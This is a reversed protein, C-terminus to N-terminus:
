KIANGKLTLLGAGPVNFTIKVAGTVVENVTAVTTLPPPPPPTTTPPPKPEEKPKEAECYGPKGPIEVQGAPCAAMSSAPAALVAIAALAAILLPLYLTRRM